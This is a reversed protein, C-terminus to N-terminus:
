PILLASAYQAYWRVLYDNPHNVNNATMDLFDKHQLLERHVGTMDMVVSSDYSSALSDLAAKYDAQNGALVTFFAADSCVGERALTTAVLIFEADANVSIAPLAFPHVANKSIKTAPQQSDKKRCVEM